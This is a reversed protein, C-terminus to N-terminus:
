DEKREAPGGTKLPETRVWLQASDQFVVLVAEGDPSFSVRQLTESGEIVQPRGSAVDWLTARRTTADDPAPGKSKPRGKPGASVWTALTKGDPSFSRGLPRDASIIQRLAGTRADWLRATTEYGVTYLTLVAQGDPSFEVQGVAQGEPGGAHGEAGITQRVEGNQTDRLRLFGAGSEWNAFSNGDPLFKVSGTYAFRLRGTQTDLLTSIKDEGVKILLRGGPSFQTSGANSLSYRLVGTVADYVSATKDESLKTIIVTGDPSYGFTPSTKGNGGITQKLLGTEVDFMRLDLGDDTIISKSNPTFSVYTIARPQSVRARKEAGTRADFLRVARDRGQAYVALSSGDDTFKAATLVGQIESKVVPLKLKLEGTQTDWLKLMEDGGRSTLMRGDPAFTVDSITNTHGALTRKLEATRIDWLRLPIESADTTSSEWGALTDGDPSVLTKLGRPNSAATALLATKGTRVDMLKLTKDGPRVLCLSGGPLFEVSPEAGGEKRFSHRLEWPEPTPVPTPSPTPPPDEWLGPVGFNLLAAAALLLVIVGSLVVGAVPVVPPRTFNFWTRAAGSGRKSDNPPASEAAVEATRSAGVADEPRAKEPSAPPPPGSGKLPLPAPATGHAKAAEPKVEAKPSTARAPVVALDSLRRQVYGALREVHQSLPPSSADLRHASGIYYRFTNSLSVGKILFPLIPVKTDESCAYQVERKVHPSNNAQPSIVVIMLRSGSIADIIPEEFDLGYPVDRSAYWCRIGRAELARSIEAAVTEDEVAYSIFVEHSVRSTSM